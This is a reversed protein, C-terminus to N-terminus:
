PFSLNIKVYFSFSFSIFSNFFQSKHPGNTSQKHKAIYARNWLCFVLDNLQKCPLCTSVIKEVIKKNTHPPDITNVSFALYSPLLTLKNWFTQTRPYQRNGNIIELQKIPTEKKGFIIFNASLIHQTTQAILHLDKKLSFFCPEIFGILYKM